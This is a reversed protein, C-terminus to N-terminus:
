LFQLIVTGLEPWHAAACVHRTVGLWGVSAAGLSPNTREEAAITVQNPQFRSRLQTTPDLVPNM